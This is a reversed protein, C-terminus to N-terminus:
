KGSVSSTLLICAHFINLADTSLAVNMMCCEASYSIPEVRKRCSLLDVFHVNFFIIYAGILTRLIRVIVM